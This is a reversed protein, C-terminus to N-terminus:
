LGKGKRAIQHNHLVFDGQMRRRTPMEIRENWTRILFYDHLHEKKNKRGLEVLQGLSREKGSFNSDDKKKKKWLSGHLCCFERINDPLYIEHPAPFGMSTAIGYHAM